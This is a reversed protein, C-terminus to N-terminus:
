TGIPNRQMCDRADKVESEGGIAAEAGRGCVVGFVKHRQRVQFM